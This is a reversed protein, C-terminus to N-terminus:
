RSLASLAQLQILMLQTCLWNLFGPTAVIINNGDRFTLGAICSSFSGHSLANRLHRVYDSNLLKMVQSCCPKGARAGQSILNRLVGEKMYVLAIYLRLVLSGAVVMQIKEPLSLKLNNDFPTIPLGNQRQDLSAALSFWLIGSSLEDFKSKPIPPLESLECLLEETTLRNAIDELIRNCNNFQRWLGQNQLASHLLQCEDEPIIDVGTLATINLEEPPGENPMGFKAYFKRLTNGITDSKNKM